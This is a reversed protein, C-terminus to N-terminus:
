GPDHPYDDEDETPLLVQQELRDAENVGTPSEIGPSEEQDDIM